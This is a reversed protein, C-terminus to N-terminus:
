DWSKRTEVLGFIELSPPLLLFARVAGEVSSVAEGQLEDLGLHLPLRPLLLGLAQNLWKSLEHAVQEPAPEVVGPWRPASATPFALEAVAAGLGGDDGGGPRTATALRELLRRHREQRSRHLDSRSHKSARSARAAPEASEAGLLELRLQDFQSWRRGMSLLERQREHEVGDSPLLLESVICRYLRQEAVGIRNASGQENDPEEEAAIAEVRVVWRQIVASTPPPQPALLGQIRRVWATPPSTTDVDAIVGTGAESSSRSQQARSGGGVGGGGKASLLDAATQRTAADSLRALLAVRRLAASPGQGWWSAAAGRYEGGNGRSSLHELVGALAAREIGLQWARATAHHLATWRADDKANVDAGLKLCLELSSVTGFRAARILVTQGSGRTRAELGRARGSETSNLVTEVGVAVAEVKEERTKGRSEKQLRNPGEGNLGPDPTGPFDGGGNGFLLTRALAEVDANAAPGREPQNEEVSSPLSTASAKDGGDAVLLHLATAGDRYTLQQTWPVAHPVALLLRLTALAYAWGAERPSRRSVGLVAALLPTGALQEEDNTPRAALAGALPKRSAWGVSPEAGRELLLEITEVRLSRTAALLATRGMSMVGPAVADIQAGAALAGVVGNHDGAASASLLKWEPSSVFNAAEYVTPAAVAAAAAAAAAEAAAAAIAEAAALASTAVAATEVRAANQEAADAADQEHVGDEAARAAAAQAARKQQAQLQAEKTVMEAVSLMPRAEASPQPAQERHSLMRRRESEASHHGVQAAHGAALKQTVDAAALQRDTLEAETDRLLGRVVAMDEELQEVEENEGKGGGLAAEGAERSRQLALLEEMEKLHKEMQAILETLQQHDPAGERAAMRRRSGPASAPAPPPAGFTGTATSPATGGYGGGCQINISEGAHISIAAGASISIDGGSVFSLLLLPLLLM